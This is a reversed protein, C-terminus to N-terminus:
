RTKLASTRHFTLILSCIGSVVSVQAGVESGIYERYINTCPKAETGDAPSRPLAEHVRRDV